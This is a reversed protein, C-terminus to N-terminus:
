TRDPLYRAYGAVTGARGHGRTVTELRGPPLSGQGPRSHKTAVWQLRTMTNSCSHHGGDYVRAWRGPHQCALFTVVGLRFRAPMAPIGIGPVRHHASGRHYGTANPPPDEFVLGFPPMKRRADASALIALWDPQEPALTHM